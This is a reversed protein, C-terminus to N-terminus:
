QRNAYSPEHLPRASAPGFGRQDSVVRFSKFALRAKTLKVKTISGIAERLEEKTVECRTGAIVERLVLQKGFQAFYLDRESDQEELMTYIRVEQEYSWGAYKTFLLSNALKFDIKKPAPRSEVYSIPQMIQEDVDFGLALGRHKDAYHSWMVPNHWDLSFCLLGHQEAMEQKTAKNVQRFRRDAQTFAFLEFPDNLDNIQAIKLHRKRLDDLGHTSSVFHYARKM